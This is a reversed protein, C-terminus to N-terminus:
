LTINFQITTQLGSTKLKPFLREKLINNSEWHKYSIYAFNSDFILDTFTAKENSSIKFYIKTKEGEYRNPFDTIFKYEGNENTFFHGRHKFKESNPSLHWVEIKANSIKSVGFEDYVIGKVLISKSFFNKRLDTKNESFPNYGKYPSENDLIKAFAQTSSVLALGTTVVATKILFSRRSSTQNTM